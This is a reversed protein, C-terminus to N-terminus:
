LERALILPFIMPSSGHSSLTIIAREVLAVSWHYLRALSIPFYNRLAPSTISHTSVRPRSPAHCNCISLPLTLKAGASIYSRSPPRLFSFSALPTLVLAFYLYLSPLYSLDIFDRNPPLEPSAPRPAAKRPSSENQPFCVCRLARVRERHSNFKVVNCYLPYHRLIIFNGGIMSRGVIGTRRGPGRAANRGDEIKEM